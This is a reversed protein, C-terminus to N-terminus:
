TNNKVVHEMDKVEDHADNSSAAANVNTVTILNLDARFTASYKNDSWSGINDVIVQVKSDDIRGGNKGTSDTIGNHPFSANYRIRAALVNTALLLFALFFVKLNFM